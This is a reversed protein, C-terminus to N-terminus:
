KKKKKIIIAVIAAIVVVAGGAIAAITGIGLGDKEDDDDDDDKEAKKTVKATPKKTPEKTPEVTPEPEKTPEPTPTVVEEPVEPLTFADELLEFKAYITGSDASGGAYETGPKYDKSAYWGIFKMNTYEPDKEPMGDGAFVSVGMAMFNKPAEKGTYGLEYVSLPEDTSIVCINRLLDPTEVPKENTTIAIIIDSYSFYSVTKGNKKETSTPAVPIWWSAKAESDLILNINGESSHVVYIGGDKRYYEAMSGLILFEANWSKEILTGEENSFFINGDKYYKSTEANSGNGLASGYKADAYGKMLSVTVSEHSLKAQRRSFYAHCEGGSNKDNGNDWIVIPVGYEKAKKGMYYAWKEREPDNNSQTASTEGIVAPIGNAIFVNKITEFTRDIDSTDEPKEPDFTNQKDSLCFNYPSYCHISAIVNKVAEGNYTPVTISNLIATSNSAAYGPIMLCREDNHGKGSKRITNAFVSVLYQVAQYSDSNGTWEENSGAKRPENMGEFILHQDYDAFYDAIQAWVAGLEAGVKVYNKELEKDNVWNEHHVNLIVYMDNAYAYDVVEKVRALYAPNIHYTNRDDFARYWTVPIRITKYGAAAVADILEKTVVPNGWTTELKLVDSSSGTSDFTNGLNWGIGMDEVVETATKGTLEDASAVGLAFYCTLIATFLVLLKKYNKM